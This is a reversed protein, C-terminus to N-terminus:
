KRLRICPSSRGPGSQKGEFLEFIHPFESALQHVEEPRRNHFTQLDRLSRGDPYRELLMKLKDANEQLAAHRASALNRLQERNFWRHITIADAMTKSDLAHTHAQSGYRVAHLTIALKFAQEHWRAVFSNVDALSSKRDPVHENHYARIMERVQAEVTIEQETEGGWYNALLDEILRNYDQRVGPPIPKFTEPIETPQLQTDCILLRAFFGGVRLRSNGLLRELLDPQLYWLLAICPSVLHIDPRGVRHVIHPDGSYGKVLLNEDPVQMRNYLGELNAIAKSAESSFSFVKEGNNALVIAAEEQTVDEMAMCPAILGDKIQCLRRIGDDHEKRLSDKDSFTSKKGKALVDELYRLRRKLRREEAGLEPQTVERYFNLKNAEHMWFPQLAPKSGETKGTGSAAAALIYLNARLCQDPGSQVYLGKAIAASCVGLVATAPLNIHVNVSESIATAMSRSPDPLCNVPFPTISPDEKEIQDSCIQDSSIERIEVARPVGGSAQRNKQEPKREEKVLHGWEMDFPMNIAEEVKHKLESRSWAPKCRTTNYIGAYHAFDRDTLAFAYRTKHLSALTTSHGNQGSCAEPLKEIYSNIRMALKEDVESYFPPDFRSRSLRSIEAGAHGALEGNDSHVEDDFRMLWHRPWVIESFEIIAAPKDVVRQYPKGTNPHIGYIVSYSGGGGRWEAVPKGDIKLGSKVVRQPYNARVFAFIQCGKAGRTRLSEQLHPNCALFPDIQKDFDIDTACLSGSPPGLLVGINGGLGIKALLEAQYPATQTEEFRINQWELIHCKKSGKPLPLLVANHATLQYLHTLEREALNM